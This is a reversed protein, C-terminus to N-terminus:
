KVGKRWNLLICVFLAKFCNKKQCSPTLPSLNIWGLNGDPSLLETNRIKVNVGESLEMTYVELGLDLSESVVIAKGASQLGSFVPALSSNADLIAIIPPTKFPKQGESGLTVPADTVLGSYYGGSSSGDQPAYGNHIRYRISGLTVKQDLIESLINQINYNLDFLAGQDKVQGIRCDIIIYKAKEFLTFFNEQFANLQARGQSTQLAAAIANFYLTEGKLRLPEATTSLNNLVNSEPSKVFAYTQDDDLAKLLTNLAAAYESASKAANVKPIAEIM